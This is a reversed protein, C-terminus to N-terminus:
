LLKRVITWAQERTLGNESMLSEVVTYHRERSDADEIPLPAAAVVESIEDEIFAEEIGFEYLWYILVVLNHCLVKCLVENVQATGDKSFIKEGFKRKLMSFASEAQNQRNLKEQYLHQNLAFTHYMRRWIDNKSESAGTTNSKFPIAPFAGLGDVTELCKVTSYARDAAVEGVRFNEATADMLAGLQGPDGAHRKTVEVATVIHTRTGVTVHCKLWERRRRWGHKEDCWTTIKPIRFGTSDVAFNTEIHAFSAAVGQILSRLVPTLEEFRLWRSLSNYCPAASVYGRAHADQLDSTFRRGSLGLYSKYVSSFIAVELPIRPRGKAGPTDAPLTKLLEQLLYRFAPKENVQARTYRNTDHKGAPKDPQCLFVVKASRAVAGLADVSRKGKIAAGRDELITIHDASM